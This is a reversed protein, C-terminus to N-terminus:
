TSVKGYQLLCQPCKELLFPIGDKLSMVISQLSVNGKFESHMKFFSLMESIIQKPVLQSCLLAQLKKLILDTEPCNREFTQKSIKCLEDDLFPPMQDLYSWRIKSFLYDDCKENEVVKDDNQEPSEDKLYTIDKLKFTQKDKNIQWIQLQSLYTRVLIKLAEFTANDYNTKKYVNEPLSYYNKFYKELLVQLVLSGNTGDKSIHSPLFDLFVQM